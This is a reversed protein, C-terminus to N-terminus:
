KFWRTLWALSEPLDLETEILILRYAERIVLPEIVFLGGLLHLNRSRGKGSQELSSPVGHGGKKYFSLFKTHSAATDMKRSVNKLAFIASVLELGPKAVGKGCTGIASRVVKDIGGSPVPM